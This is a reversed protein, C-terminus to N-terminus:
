NENTTRITPGTHKPKEYAPQENSPNLDWTAMAALQSQHTLDYNLPTVSILGQSLAIIDTINVPEAHKPQRADPRGTLWYYFRGSPAARREFSEWYQAVDMGAVRTEANNKRLAALPININYLRSEQDKKELIKEIVDVALDAARHFPENEDYELSVAISTIGYFAGEVAAAVTGSYIINIGANLGGNIGSVVLDPRNPVIESIGLKVCDAPSGDVTWGWHKQDVFVKKVMLPTLFTISHSVGSQEKSPAVVYVEGLRRLAREMAALGPAYIGDDNTLLIKM